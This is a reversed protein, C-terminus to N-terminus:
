ANWTFVVAVFVSIGLLCCFLLTSMLLDSQLRARYLDLLDAKELRAAARVRPSTRTAM